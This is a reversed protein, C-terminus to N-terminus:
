DIMGAEQLGEVIEEYIGSEVSFFVEERTVPDKITLGGRDIFLQFESM